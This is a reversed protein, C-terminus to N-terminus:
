CTQANVRAAHKPLGEGTLKQALQQVHVELQQCRQDYERIDQTWHVEYKGDGFQYKVAPDKRCRGLQQKSGIM